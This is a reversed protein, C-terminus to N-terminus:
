SAIPASLRKSPLMVLCSVKTVPAMTRSTVTTSVKLLILRSSSLPLLYTAPQASYCRDSGFTFHLNWSSVLKSKYDFGKDSHDYGIRKVTDRIVKQYDLPSRTTIEGFVMIKPFLRM